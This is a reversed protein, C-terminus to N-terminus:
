VVLAVPIPLLDRPMQSVPYGDSSDSDSDSSPMVAIQELSFPLLGKEVVANRVAQDGIKASELLQCALPLQVMYAAKTEEPLESHNTRLVAVRLVEHEIAFMLDRVDSEKASCNSAELYSSAIAQRTKFSPYGRTGFMDWHYNWFALDFARCAQGSLELDVALLSGDKQVLVNKNHLDGHNLVIENGVGDLRQRTNLYKWCETTSPEDKLRDAKIDWEYFAHPAPESNAECVPVAHLAAIMRGIRRAESFQSDEDFDALRLGERWAQIIASDDAALVKATLGAEGCSQTSAACVPVTKMNYEDWEGDAPLVRVFFTDKGADVRFALANCGGLPEATIEDSAHKPMLRKVAAIAQPAKEASFSDTM